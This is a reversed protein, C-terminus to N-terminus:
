NAAEEDEFTMKKPWFLLERLVTWFCERYFGRPCCQRGEGGAEISDSNSDSASTDEADLIYQGAVDNNGFKFIPQRAREGRIMVDLKSFFLCFFGAMLPTVIFTIM